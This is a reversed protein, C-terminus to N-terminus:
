VQKMVIRKLDPWRLNWYWPHIAEVGYRAAYSPMDVPGDAYLFATHAKPCIEKLKLISLHNFSSYIVRENMSFEETLATIKEEIGDYDFMGTKLEINIVLSTPQILQFVERM